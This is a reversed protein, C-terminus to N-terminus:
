IGQEERYLSDIYQKAKAGGLVDNDYTEKNSIYIDVIETNSLETGYNSLINVLIIDPMNLYISDIAILEKTDRRFDLIDKITPSESVITDSYITEVQSNLEKAKNKEHCSWFCIGAILAVILVGLIWTITKSM